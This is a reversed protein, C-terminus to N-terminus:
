SHHKFQKQFAQQHWEEVWPKFAHAPMPRAIFYGQGCECGLEILQQSHQLTEVGEAVLDCEFAGAFGIVGKLIALDGASSLMNQVFSRDIKLTDVSLDRLHSLSSYGTGFDDLSIRIGMMRCANLVSYVHSVDEITSTELVELELRQKPLNPFDALISSLDRLFQSHQLHYGDINVSVHLDLGQQLWKQLQCLASTIVWRGLEVGTSTNNLVPLFTAPEKLGESPHNWRILAEAGLVKGTLMNIKPQYYLEFQDADMAARIASLESQKGKQVQENDVNFLCIQNKGSLKAQYMAQDAQRILQDPEVAKSQPYLTVGISASLQLLVSDIDFPESLKNILRSLSEEVLCPSFRGNLFIVFEDGGFRAILDDSRLNSALRKAVLQLIKDGMHHGYRDNVEKFGDLDVFALAFAMDDKKLDIIKQDLHKALAARNPLGTLQDTDSLTRLLSVKQELLKKTETLEQFLQDSRSSSSVSWFIRENASDDCHVSVVIPLTSTSRTVMSLRIEDCQKERVLIPVIYTDYMIQSAKSLLTFLDAGLLENTSYGHYQELYRNSYLIRRKYDTVMCGVPFDDLSFLNSTVM